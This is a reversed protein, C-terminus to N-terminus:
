HFGWKSTNTMGFRFEAIKKLENKLRMGDNDANKTILSRTM